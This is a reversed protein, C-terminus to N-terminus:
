LKHIRIAAGGSAALDLPLKTKSTVNVKMINVPYPNTRYDANEGDTYITAIYKCNADLFSLNLDVHHPNSDTISGVFWDDSNRDKRVFTVYEGIKAEPILTKDWNTPCTKLFEFEKRDATYNEIKDSAMQLPSYIVVALALQKAITTHPHTTPVATNNFNFTGPTFDM